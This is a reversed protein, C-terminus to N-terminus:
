AKARERGTRVGATDRVKTVKGSAPDFLFWGEQRTIILQGTPSVDLEIPLCGVIGLSLAAAILLRPFM